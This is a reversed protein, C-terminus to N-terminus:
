IPIASKMGSDGASKLDSDTASMSRFGCGLGVDGGFVSHRVLHLESQVDAVDM